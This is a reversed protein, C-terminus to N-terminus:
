FFGSLAASAGGGPTPAMGFGNVKPAWASASLKAASYGAWATENPSPFLFAELGCVVSLGGGVLLAAAVGDQDQRDLTRGTFDALAFTTGLALATVGLGAFIGGGVRREFREEAAAKRLETEGAALATADDQGLAKARDVAEGAKRYPSSGLLTFAGGLSSAIGVGLAIGPGAGPERSYLVAGVPTMLAGVGLSALGGVFRYARAPEDGHGVFVRFRALDAAHQAERAEATTPALSVVPLSAPAVTPAPVVSPPPEPSPSSVPPGDAFAAAPVIFTGIFIWCRVINRNM